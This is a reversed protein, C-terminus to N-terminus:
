ETITRLRENAKKLQEIFGNILDTKLKYSELKMQEHEKYNVREREYLEILFDNENIAYEIGLKLSKQAIEKDVVDTWQSNYRARVIIRSLEKDIWDAKIKM